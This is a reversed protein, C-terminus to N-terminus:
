IRDDTKSRSQGNSICYGNTEMTRRKGRMGTHYTSWKGSIDQAGRLANFYTYELVDAVVSYGCIKLMEVTMVQWAVSCCAEIWGEKYQNCGARENTTFGGTNHCDFEAISWWINEFATKYDTKGTAWYLEALAMVAHVQEWRTGIPSPSTCFSKGARGRNYYDGAQPFGNKVIQEAFM